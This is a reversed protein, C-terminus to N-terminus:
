GGGGLTAGGRRSIQVNAVVCPRTNIIEKVVFRELVQVLVVLKGNDVGYRDHPCVDYM